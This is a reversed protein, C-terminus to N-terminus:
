GLCINEMSGSMQQTNSDWLDRPKLYCTNIKSSLLLTLYDKAWVDKLHTRPPWGLYVMKVECRFEQM